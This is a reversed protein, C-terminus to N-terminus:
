LGVVVVDNEKPAGQKQLEDILRCWSKIKEQMIRFIWLNEVSLSEISAFHTPRM